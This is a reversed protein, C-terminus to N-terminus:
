DLFAKEVVFHAPKSNAGEELGYTNEFLDKLELNFALNGCIMARDSEPNLPPVGLDEFAEGSRMLDTIRGMKASEERTTTPYYKIKKWFGEGIVENLLEDDKLSEILERGYTLEGAERCTHTIIVEDFKEYTEPERLLSAFPAFGTGTAFFWIRKGPVLADHVLTGVPKPRLIIEDGVKIHQLKSTLPGDQVKISYFEMEEDWSPSAISYARLLPKVKGTKPDPDNMLGIMVFEGSRFRLSAPRTCRFSFLRDTWHKVETVTQADPLAPKAKAPAAAETVPESVPSIENM